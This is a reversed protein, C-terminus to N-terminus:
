QQKCEPQESATNEGAHKKHGGAHRHHHRGHHHRQPHEDEEVSEDDDDEDEDEDEDDDEEDSEDAIEEGTFFLVAKPIITDRLFQGLKFDSELLMQIDDDLDESLTEEPPEFFNFFSDEQVNKTITRKAGSGKKKQVKKIVKVTVNKGPNWNIVCGKARVIEPGEYSFPEDASIEYNFFYRKTLFKNTFYENPSFHFELTFGPEDRHLKCKIDSLHQLIPVDHDQITENLLPVNRLTTLWFDPIGKLDGNNTESSVAAKKNVEDCLKEVEDGEGDVLEEDSPWDCEDDAPEKEGTVITRRQEFIRQHEVDYKIELEFLEKFFNVDIKVTEYQLKKLARVRRKIIAPLKHYQELPDLSAVSDDGSKPSVIADGDSM